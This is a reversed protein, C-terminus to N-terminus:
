SRSRSFSTTCHRPLLSARASARGGARSCPWDWGGRSSSRLPRHPSTASARRRPMPHILQMGNRLRQTRVAPRVGVLQLRDRRRRPRGSLVRGIFDGQPKLMRAFGLDAASTQGNLEAGTVHGKEIRLTNLADLGYPRFASPRAPRLVAWWVREAVSAPVAVEYALEGSFSIRFVRGAVGRDDANGASM